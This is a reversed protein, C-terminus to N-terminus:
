SMFKMVATSQQFTLLTAQERNCLQIAHVVPSCERYLIQAHITWGKEPTFQVFYATADTVM